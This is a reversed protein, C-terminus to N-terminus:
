SPVDITSASVQRKAFVAVQLGVLSLQAASRDDTCVGAEDFIADATNLTAGMPTPWGRQAHVISRLAALTTGAAQWGFATVVCGVARGDLYSREDERLDELLDLANKVMGFVGGHYGPTAIILGDAVRVAEVLSRAAESRQQRGPAYMPLTGIFEGGFFATRSGAEAAAQLAIALSRDTTSGRRTTGGIGVVFPEKSSALRQPRERDHRM